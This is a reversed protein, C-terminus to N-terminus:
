NLEIRIASRGLAKGFKFHCATFHVCHRRILFSGHTTTCIHLCATLGQSRIPSHHSYKTTRTLTSPTTHTNTTNTNTTHHKNNICMRSYILIHMMRIITHLLLLLLAPPSHALPLGALMRAKDYCANNTNHNICTNNNHNNINLTNYPQKTLHLMYHRQRKDNTTSNQQDDDNASTTSRAPRGALRRLGRGRM